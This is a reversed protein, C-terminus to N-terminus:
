ENRGCRRMATRYYLVVAIREWPERGGLGRIDVNGHAEHVDCLLLDTTRMDVAIRYKPFVLYGGEYDGKTLTSIVGFGEPLDGSDTHVPTQASQRPTWRNVTGTTFATNWIVWSPDTELAAQRQVEYREPLESQFVQDCARIYPLIRSWGRLDSGNFETLRCTPKDYYAIIGGQYGRHGSQKTGAKRFSPRASECVHNELIGPRFLLLPSGDPKYLDIPERIVEDFHRDDLFKGLQSTVWKEDCTTLM